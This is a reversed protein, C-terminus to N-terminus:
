RSVVTERSRLDEYLAVMRSSQLGMGFASAASKARLRREGSPETTARLVAASLDGATGEVLEGGDRVVERTQPTDVAVIPCGSAMAEALVLGQTETTSPFLFVDSSAYVDPLATRPLEGAFIVRQALGLQAAQRQLDGRAPGDGVILLRLAPDSTHALTALALGANKEAALRSVFLILREGEGVGFSSRLQERRRGAAFAEVDIASPVVEIPSTVALERLRDRMTQTPVVVADAANAYFRTLSNAARQITKEDFPIYHAYKELQTHYTYVLPIDFRRAYRLGMWGTVFPSHTHIISLRKIVGNLNRPSVLPITLRYPTRMPLRWSPMRFVPGDREVYGPARPAFCFVEHGAFRLARALTDVSEVVGNVIPRYCETFFGVRLSDVGWAKRNYFRRGQAGAGM